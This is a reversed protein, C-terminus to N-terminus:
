PRGDHLTMPIEGLPPKGDLTLGWCDQVQDPVEVKAAVAPEEVMLDFLDEEKVKPKYKHKAELSLMHIANAQWRKRYSAKLEDITIGHGEFYGEIKVKMEPSWPKNRAMMDERDTFTFDGFPTGVSGLGGKHIWSASDVSFWPYVEMLVPSTVAYGHTKPMEPLSTLYNFVDDLWHMRQNTHYDNSPSIGIYGCGADVMKKLWMLPEGQHYIPMIRDGSHHQKIYDRLYLYNAWGQSAAEEAMAKTIDSAAMGQKGPIVDLNAAIDFSGLLSVLKAAYQKVDIPTGKNWATFAGSDCIGFSQEDTEQAKIFGALEDKSNAHWSLLRKRVGVSYALDYEFGSGAFFINIGDGRGPNLLHYRPEM